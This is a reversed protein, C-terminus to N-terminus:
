VIALATRYNSWLGKTSKSKVKLLADRLDTGVAQCQTVLSALTADSAPKLHSLRADLDSIVSDLEAHEKLTGDRSRKLNNGKSLVALELQVFQLINGALAIAAVAEM